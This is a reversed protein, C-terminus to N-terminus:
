FHENVGHLSRKRRTKHVHNGQSPKVESTANHRPKLLKTQM